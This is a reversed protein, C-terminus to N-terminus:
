TGVIWSKYEKPMDEIYKQQEDETHFKYTVMVQDAIPQGEWIREAYSVPRFSAEVAQPTQGEKMDYLSILVKVPFMVFRQEAGTGATKKQSETEESM